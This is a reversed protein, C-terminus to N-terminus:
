VPHYLPKDHNIRLSFVRSDHDTIAEFNLRHNTILGFTHKHNTVLDYLQMYGHDMVIDLIFNHNM